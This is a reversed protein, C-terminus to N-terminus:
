SRRTSRSSVIWSGLLVATCGALLSMWSQFPAQAFFGRILLSCGLLLLGAGMSKPFADALKRRAAGHDRRGAAPARDKVKRYFGRRSRLPPIALFEEREAASVSIGSSWRHRYFLFEAGHPEFSTELLRRQEGPTMNFAM